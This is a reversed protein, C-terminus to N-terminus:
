MTYKEVVSFVAHFCFSFRNRMNQVSIIACRFVMNIKAFVRFLTFFLFMDSLLLVPFSDYKRISYYSFLM